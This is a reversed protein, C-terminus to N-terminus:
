FKDADKCTGAIETKKISPKNDNSKEWTRICAQWDKMKNKGVLWGKSEYFDYFKNADINNNRETCYVKIEEITPKVFKNTKKEQIITILIKTNPIDKLTPLLTSLQTHLQTLIPTPLQTLLTTLLPTNEVSSIIPEPAQIESEKEEKVDKLKLIKIKPAKFNNIGKQVEILKFDVLENLIKYYTKNSNILSGYMATDAPCKFWEVWDARNNQNLLFMYLSSHLPTINFETNFVFSYYARIQTFINIRAKM